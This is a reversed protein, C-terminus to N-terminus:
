GRPEVTRSRWAPFARGRFVFRTALLALALLLVLPAITALVVFTRAAVHVFARAADEWAEVIGWGEDAPPPGGVVPEAVGLTITAFSTQDDLYRLQGRVQELELQVQNLRSQVALAAAVSNARDLLELLQNEVAALHRARAELDVFEASVDQGSERQGVVRGLDALDSMVQAYTRAPVRLVLTGRKARTGTVENSSAIFGGAGAAITRAEEVTEDLRGRGVRLRLTATQIVRPGLRPLPSSVQVADADASLPAGEAGEAEQGAPALSRSVTAGASSEDGGGRGGAEDDGGGGGSTCGAALAALTLLLLVVFRRM